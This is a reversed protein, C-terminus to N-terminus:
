SQLEPPINSYIDMVRMIFWLGITPAFIWNLMMLVHKMNKRAGIYTAVVIVAYFIMWYALSRVLEIIGSVHKDEFTPLISSLVIFGFSIGLTYAASRFAKANQKEGLLQTDVFNRERRRAIQEVSEYHKGHQPM